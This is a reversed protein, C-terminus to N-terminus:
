KGSMHLDLWKNCLNSLFDNEQGPHKSLCRDKQVEELEFWHSSFKHVYASFQHMKFCNNKEKVAHLGKQIPHEFDGSLQVVHM